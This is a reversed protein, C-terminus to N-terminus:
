NDKKHNKILWGLTGGKIAGGILGSALYMIILAQQSPKSGGFKFYTPFDIDIVWGAGFALALSSSLIWWSAKHIHRRLVLSQAFGLVAGAVAGVFYGSPFIFLCAILSAFAAIGGFFTALIWLGPEGIYIKLLVWQIFPLAIFAYSNTLPVFMLTFGTALAWLISLQWNLKLVLKSSKSM